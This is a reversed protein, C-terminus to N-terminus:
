VFFKKRLDFVVNKQMQKKTKKKKPKRKISTHNPKKRTLTFSRLSLGLQLNLCNYKKFAEWGKHIHITKKILFFSMYGKNPQYFKLVKKKLKGEFDYLAMKAQEKSLNRLKYKSKM